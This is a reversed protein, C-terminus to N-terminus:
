LPEIRVVKGKKLVVKYRRLEKDNFPYKSRVIYEKAGIQGDVLISLNWLNHVLDIPSAKIITANVTRKTNSM